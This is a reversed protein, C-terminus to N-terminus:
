KNVFGAAFEAPNPHLIFIVRKYAKFGQPHLLHISGVKWSKSYWTVLICKWRQQRQLNLSFIERKVFPADSYSLWWPDTWWQMTWNKVIHGDLFKWFNGLLMWLKLTKCKQNFIKENSKEASKWVLLSFNTLWIIICRSILHNLGHFM